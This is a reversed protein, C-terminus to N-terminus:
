AVWPVGRMYTAALFGAADTVAGGGVAVVLTRRTAGARLLRTAARELEALTKGREGDPLTHVLALRGSALLARELRRAFPTARVPPCTVLAVRDHGAALAALAERVGGGVRVDYRHEEQAARLVEATM